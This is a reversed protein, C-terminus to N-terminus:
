TRLRLLGQYLTEVEVHREAWMAWVARAWRKIQDDREPGCPASLAEMVALSAHEAPVEFLPWTKMKNGLKM